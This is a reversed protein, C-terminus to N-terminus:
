SGQDEWYGELVWEIAPVLLRPLFFSAVLLGGMVWWWTPNYPSGYFYLVLAMSGATGLLGLAGLLLGLRRRGISGSRSGAMVGEAPLTWHKM